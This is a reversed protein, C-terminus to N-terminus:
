CFPYIFTYHGINNNNKVPVEQCCIIVEFVDVNREAYIDDKKHAVFALGYQHNLKGPIVEGMFRARIIWLDSEDIDYGAVVAKNVLEGATKITSPVWEM